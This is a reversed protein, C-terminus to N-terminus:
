PNEVNPDSPVYSPREPISEMPTKLFDKEAAVSAGLTPGARITASDPAIYVNDGAIAKEDGALSKKHLQKVLDYFPDKYNTELATMKEDATVVEQKNLGILTTEGVKEEQQNDNTFDYVGIDEDEFLRNKLEEEAEEITLAAGKWPSRIFEFVVVALLIQCVLFSILYILTTQSVISSLVVITILQFLLIASLTVKILIVRNM